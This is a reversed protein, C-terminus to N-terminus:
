EAREIFSARPYAYTVEDASQLPVAGTSAYLRTAAINAFPTLEKRRFM